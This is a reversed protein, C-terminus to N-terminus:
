NGKALAFIRHISLSLMVFNLTNLHQWNGYKRLRSREYMPMCFIFRDNWNIRKLIIVLLKAFNTKCSLALLRSSIAANDYYFRYSELGRACIWWLTKRFFRSLILWVCLIPM